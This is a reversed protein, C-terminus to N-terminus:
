ASIVPQSKMAKEANCADAMTGFYLMASASQPYLHGTRMTFQSGFALTGESGVLLHTIIAFPDPFRVLPM